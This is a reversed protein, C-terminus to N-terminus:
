RDQGRPTREASRIIGSTAAFVKSLDGHLSSSRRHLIFGKQGERDSRRRARLKRDKIRM